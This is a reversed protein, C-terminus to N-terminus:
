SIICIEMMLQVLMIVNKLSELYKIMCFAALAVLKEPHDVSVSSGITMIPGGPRVPAVPAVPCYPSVPWVPAVPIEPSNQM